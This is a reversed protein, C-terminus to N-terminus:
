RGIKLKKILSYQIQAIVLCWAKLESTLCHVWRKIIRNCQKHAVRFLLVRPWNSHSTIQNQKQKSKTRECANTTGYNTSSPSFIRKFNSTWPWTPLPTSFNPLLYVTPPSAQFKSLKWPTMHTDGRLQLPQFPFTIYSFYCFKRFNSKKQRLIQFINRSHLCIIQFVATISILKRCLQLSFTQLQVM